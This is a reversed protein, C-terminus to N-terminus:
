LIRGLPINEERNEAIMVKMLRRTEVFLLLEDDQTIPRAHMTDLRIPHLRQFTERVDEQRGFFPAFVSWNDRRCIVLVYDTFDAYAVLARESRGNQQATRRKQQWRDYLGNPLRHKPWDPGFANAMQRDIFSRVHTELRLLWDHARNTRTLGEEEVDDNSAQVPSGYLDILSPPERWLGAISLSEQFAAAPFATLAPDFGLGEYFDSRVGLDTFIEEPWTITDRWDGLDVRLATGLDHGFTPMDKLAHGIGQLAAFGGMSRMSEEMNLWPTRMSEMASRFSSAEQAYRKLAESLPSAGFEALLGATETIQPLRFRIEWGATAQRVVDLNAVLAGHDFIGAMRLDGIPGIASRLLVQKRGIDELLRQIGSNEQLVRAIDFMPSRAALAAMDLAGSRKELTDQADLALESLRDREDGM